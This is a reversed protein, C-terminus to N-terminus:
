RSSASRRSRHGPQNGRTRGSRSRRAYRITIGVCFAALVWPMWLGAGTWQGTHVINLDDDNMLGLPQYSARVTGDPGPFGDLQIGEKVIRTDDSIWRGVPTCGGRATPKCSEEYFTGWMIPQHDRADKASALGLAVSFAFLLGMALYLVVQGIPRSVRVIVHLWEGLQHNARRRGKRILSM